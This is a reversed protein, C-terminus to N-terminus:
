STWVVASGEAQHAPAKGEHPQGLHGAETCQPRASPGDPSVVTQPEIEKAKVAREYRKVYARPYDETPNFRAHEPIVPNLRYLAQLMPPKVLNM